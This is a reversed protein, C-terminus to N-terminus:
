KEQLIEYAAPVDVGQFWQTMGWFVLFTVIGGLILIGMSQGSPSIGLITREMKKRHIAAFHTFFAMIALIYYPVFFLCTPFANIGAAGFYFNTDLHLVWRGIVVASTHFLMFFALYLGSGIHWRDWGLKPTGKRKRVLTIGSVVQLVVAALLVVEVFINRYVLRLNEMLSIHQEIGLIAWAHNCLHMGIFLSLVIGSAYHLTRMNM